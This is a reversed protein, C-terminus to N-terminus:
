ASESSYAKVEKLFEIFSERNIRHTNVNRPSPHYSCFVRVGGIDIHEENQFQLGKTDIGQARFYGMISDYAIRGLVLISRLNRMSGIEDSLYDSCRSLEDRKPKDDPPVCKLVATIFARDYRLGDGIRLSTPQNTIGAEHLCSVLFESSRDGTFIRGTRNAGTAAPALGVILLTGGPDGYGPVPRSWYHEGIFRNNRSAVVVRFDVLRPCLECKVISRDRDEPSKFKM